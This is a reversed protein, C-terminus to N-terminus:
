FEQLIQKTSNITLTFLIVLVITTFFSLGRHVKLNVDIIFIDNFQYLQYWFDLGKYSHKLAAFSLLFKM